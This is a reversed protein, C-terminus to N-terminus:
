IMDYTLPTCLAAIQVSSYRGQYRINYNLVTTVNGGMNTGVFRGDARM